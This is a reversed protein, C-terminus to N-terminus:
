DNNRMTTAEVINLRASRNLKRAFCDSYIYARVNHTAPNYTVYLRITVVFVHNDSIILNRYSFFIGYTVFM